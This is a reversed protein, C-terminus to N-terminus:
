YLSVINGPANCICISKVSLVGLCQERWFASCVKRNRGDQFLSYIITVAASKNVHWPLSCFHKMKKSDSYFIVEGGEEEKIELLIEFSQSILCAGEELDFLRYVAYGQQLKSSIYLHENNAAILYATSVVDQKYAILLWFFFSNSSNGREGLISLSLDLSFSELWSFYNSFILKFGPVCSRQHSPGLLINIIWKKFLERELLFNAPFM